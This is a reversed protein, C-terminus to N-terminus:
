FVKILLTSRLNQLDIILQRAYRLKEFHAKVQKVAHMQQSIDTYPVKLSSFERSNINSVTGTRTTQNIWSKYEDTQTFFYLYEPMLKNTNLRFKILYGAHSCKGDSAKYYYSRGPDATRAILFDGETLIYNSDDSDASVPQDNLQGFEGIDTIRIYRTENNFKAASFNAGYKPPEICLNILPLRETNEYFISKLFVSLFRTFLQNTNINNQLTTELSVFLNVLESQIELPPLVFKQHKLTGWNITPSLSGVSIDVAIHMFVDSHMFFPFLKPDIVVPNARLVLAHASCFGDCTAIAAKRQYARRRGFIIDDKYFRLKQGNVDDPTGTRKIHLSESDIHELGIYM